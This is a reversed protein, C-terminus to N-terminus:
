ETVRQVDITGNVKQAFRVAASYSEFCAFWTQWERDPYRVVYQTVGQVHGPRLGYQTYAKAKKGM